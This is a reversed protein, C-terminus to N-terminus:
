AERQSLLGDLTSIVATWDHGTPGDAPAQMETDAARLLPMGPRIASLSGALEPFLQDSAADVVVAKVRRDIFVLAAATNLNHAAIVKYGAKRLESGISPEIEKSARDPQFLLVLHTSM